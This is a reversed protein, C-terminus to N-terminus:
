VISVVGNNNTLNAQGATLNVANVDSTIILSTYQRRDVSQWTIEVVRAEPYVTLNYDTNDALKDPLYITKMSGYSSLFIQNISTALKNAVSKASLLRKNSDLESNRKDINVFVVLFTVMLISVIIIFEM